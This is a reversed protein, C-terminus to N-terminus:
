AVQGATGAQQLQGIGALIGSGIQGGTPAEALAQPTFERTPLALPEFQQGFQQSFQALPGEPGFGAQFEQEPSVLFPLLSKGEQFSALRRADSLETGRLYASVANTASTLARGRRAEAEFEKNSRTQEFLGQRGTQSLFENIGIQQQDIEIGKLGLQYQLDAAYRSAAAGAGGGGDGTGPDYAAGTEWAGLAPNYTSLIVRGGPLPLFAVGSGPTDEQYGPPPPPIGPGAQGGVGSGTVDGGGLLNGYEPILYSGFIDQFLDRGPEVRPAPEPM